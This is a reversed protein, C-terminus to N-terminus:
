RFNALHFHKKYFAKVRNLNNTFDNDSNPCALWFKKLHWIHGPKVYDYGGPYYRIHPSSRDDGLSFYPGGDDDYEDYGIPNDHWDGPFLEKLQVINM